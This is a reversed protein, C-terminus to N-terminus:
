RDPTIAQHQQDSLQSITNIICREGDATVYDFGAYVRNQSASVGLRSAFPLSYCDHSLTLLYNEEPSLSVVLRRNDLAEWSSFGDVLDIETVAVGIPPMAQVTQLVPVLASWALVSLWRRTRHAMLLTSFSKKDNHITTRM